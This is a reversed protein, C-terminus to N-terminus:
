ISIGDVFGMEKLKLAVWARRCDEQEISMYIDAATTDMAVLDALATARSADLHTEQQVRRMAEHRREAEVGADLQRQRESAYERLSNSITDLCEKVGDLAINRARLRAAIAVTAAVAAAAA